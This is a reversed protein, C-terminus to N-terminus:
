SRTGISQSATPFATASTLEWQRMLLMKMDSLETVSGPRYAECHRVEVIPRSLRRSLGM